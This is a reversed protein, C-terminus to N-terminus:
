HLNTTAEPDGVCREAKELDARSLYVGCAVMGGYSVHYRYEPQAAEFWMRKARKKKRAKKTLM